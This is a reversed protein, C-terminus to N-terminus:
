FVLIMADPGMVEHCICPSIISVTVSKIKKPELNGRHVTIIAVFNLCKNSPLFTIVSKSLTNNFLSMVKNVLEMCDFNHNKWYDHISTLVPGYLLSLALSNISKFQTVPSSKSLGKSQM